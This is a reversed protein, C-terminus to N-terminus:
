NLWKIFSKFHQQSIYHESDDIETKVKAEHNKFFFEAIKASKLKIRQDNKGHSIFFNLKPYRITNWIHEDPLRGSFIAINRVLRKHNIALEYSITGGEGFGAITINREKIDYKDALTHILNKLQKTSKTLQKHNIIHPKTSVDIDYWYYSTSDQVVSPAQAGIVLYNDPVLSTYPRWVDTTSNNGHLLLLIKKSNLPDGKLIRYQLKSANNCSLLTIVIIIGLLYPLAKKKHDVKSSNMKKNTM